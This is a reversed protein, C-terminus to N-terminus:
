PPRTSTPGSAATRVHWWVTNTVCEWGGTPERAGRRHWLLGGEKVAFVPRACKPRKHRQDDRRGGAQSLTDGGDENLTAPLVRRRPGGEGAAQGIPDSRWSRARGVRDPRRRHVRCSGDGALAGPECPGVPSALQHPGAPAPPGRQRAGASRTAETAIRDRDHGPGPYGASGGGREEGSGIEGVALRGTMTATRCKAATRRSPSTSPRPESGRGRSNALLRQDIGIYRAM